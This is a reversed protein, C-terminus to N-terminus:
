LSGLLQQSGKYVKEPWLFKMCKLDFPCQEVYAKYCPSCPVDLRISLTKEGLPHWEHPLVEGSFIALTPVDLIGAIHCPGSDNGIFLHCYRVAAMFEELSTEGALSVAKGKHKMQSFIQSVPQKEKKGGFLVVQADFREILLDALRSFYPIPWQKLPGGAGPHIGILFKAQLLHSYREVSPLEKELTLRPIPM